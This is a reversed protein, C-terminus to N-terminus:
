AADTEALNEIRRLGAVVRDRTQLYKSSSAWYERAHILLKPYLERLQMAIKFKDENAAKALEAELTAIEDQLLSIREAGQEPSLSM